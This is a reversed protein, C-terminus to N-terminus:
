KTKYLEIGNVDYLTVICYVTKGEEAYCTEVQSALYDASDALGYTVVTEDMVDKPINSADVDPASISIYVLDDSRDFTVDYGPMNDKIYNEVFADVVLSSDYQDVPEETDDEQYNNYNDTVEQTTNTDTTTEKDGSVCCYVIFLVLVLVVIGLIKELKSMKMLREKFNNLM